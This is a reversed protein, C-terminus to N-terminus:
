HGTLHQPLEDYHEAKFAMIKQEQEELQAETSVLQEELFRMTGGLSKEMYQLTDELFFNALENTIRMVLRPDKGQYFIQLSDTGQVKVTIGQRLEDIKEQVANPDQLNPVLQLHAIVKRLLYESMVLTKFIRLRQELDPTLKVTGVGTEAIPKQELLITASAEYVNPILRVGIALMGTLCVVVALFVGYRRRFMQWLDTLSIQDLQRMMM